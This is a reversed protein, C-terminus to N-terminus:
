REPWLRESWGEAWVPWFPVSDEEAANVDKRVKNGHSQRRTRAFRGDREAGTNCLTGALTGHQFFKREPPPSVPRAHSRWSRMGPPMCPPTAWRTRKARTPALTTTASAPSGAAPATRAGTLPLAPDRRSGCTLPWALRVCHASFYGCCGGCGTLMYLPHLLAPGAGTRARTCSLRPTATATTGGHCAPDRSSPM